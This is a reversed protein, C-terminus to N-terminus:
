QLFIQPEMGYKECMAKVQQVTWDSKGNVKLNVTSVDLKLLEAIETQKINHETLWGKVKLNEM